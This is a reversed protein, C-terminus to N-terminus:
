LFFFVDDDFQKKKIKTERSFFFMDSAKILPNAPAPPPIM